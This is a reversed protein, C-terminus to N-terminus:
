LKGRLSVGGGILGYKSIEGWVTEYELSLCELILWHPASENFGNCLGLSLHHFIGQSTHGERKAQLYNRICHGCLSLSDRELSKQLSIFDMLSPVQQSVGDGKLSECELVLMKPTFHEGYSHLSCLWGSCLPKAMSGVDWGEAMGEERSELGM